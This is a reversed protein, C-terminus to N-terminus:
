ACGFQRTLAHIAGEARALCLAVARNMAQHSVFHLRLLAVMSVHLTM